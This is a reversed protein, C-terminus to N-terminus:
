VVMNSINDLRRLKINGMDRLSKKTEGDGDVVKTWARVQIVAIGVEMENKGGLWDM